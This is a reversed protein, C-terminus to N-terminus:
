KRGIDCQFYMFAVITRLAERNVKVGTDFAAFAEKFVVDLVRDFSIDPQPGQLTAIAARLDGVIEYYRERLEDNRSDGLFEEIMRFKPEYEKHWTAFYDASLRNLSNKDEIGLYKYDHSPDSKSGSTVGSHLTTVVERLDNWTILLGPTSPAFFSAKWFPNDKYFKQSKRDIGGITCKGHCNRCLLMM